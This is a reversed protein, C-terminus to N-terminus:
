KAEGIRVCLVRAAAAFFVREDHLYFNLWGHEDPEVRSATVHESTGGDLLVEYLRGTAAPDVDPSLLQQPTVGLAEALGYLDDVRIRRKGNELTWMAMPGLSHGAKTAREALDNQTIGLAERLRRVNAAVVAEPTDPVAPEPPTLEPDAM